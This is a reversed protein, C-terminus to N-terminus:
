IQRSKFNVTVNLPGILYRFLALLLVCTLPKTQQPLVLHLELENGELSPLLM